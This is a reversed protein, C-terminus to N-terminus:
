LTRLYPTECVSRTRSRHVLATKLLAQASHSTWHTKFIQLQECKVFCTHLSCKFFERYFNQQRSFLNIFLFYQFLDNREFPLFVFRLNSVCQSLKRSEFMTNRFFVVNVYFSECQDCYNNNSVEQSCLFMSKGFTEFVFTLFKYRLWNDTSLEDSNKFTSFYTCNSSLLSLSNILSVVWCSFLYKQNKSTFSHWNPVCSQSEAASQMSRGLPNLHLNIRQTSRFIVVEVLGNKRQEFNM